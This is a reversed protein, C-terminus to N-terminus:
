RTCLCANVTRPKPSKPTSIGGEALDNKLRKRPDLVDCLGGGVMNFALVTCAPFARLRLRTSSVARRRSQLWV